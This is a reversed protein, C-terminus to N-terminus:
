DLLIKKEKERIKELNKPDTVLVQVGMALRFKNLSMDLCAIKANEVKLPM